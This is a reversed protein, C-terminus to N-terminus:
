AAAGSSRPRSPEPPARRASLSRAARRRRPASRARPRVLMRASPQLHHVPLWPFTRLMWAAEGPELADPSAKQGEAVAVADRLVAEAEELVGAARRKLDALDDEDRGDVLMRWACERCVEAVAILALAGSTTARGPAAVLDSIGEDVRKFRENLDNLDSPM